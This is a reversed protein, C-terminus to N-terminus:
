ISSFMEETKKKILKDQVVVLTYVNRAVEGDLQLYKSMYTYGLTFMMFCSDFLLWYHFYPDGHLEEEPLGTLFYM